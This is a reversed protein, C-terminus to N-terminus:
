GIKQILVRIANTAPAAAFDITVLGSAGRTVDAYVTEGSSVEVLQIMFSSSDNGLGHTASTIPLSTLSGDGITGSFTSASLSLDLIDAITVKYNEGDPASYFPISYNDATDDTADNATLSNIDLGLKATGSSYSLSLGDKDGAGEIHVNGIGIATLSALDINNQVTTWNALATPQDVEAILVDGVRVQETFFLGDATVTYTWGTKILNPNPSNDLNPSNTAANYSGQYVLANSSAQDAYAKVAASTPITTDNDNNEIGEADTIIVAPNIMAFDVAGSSITTTIDAGTAGTGTVDGILNINFSTPLTPFTTLNGAGDIYETADGNMTIDVSPNVTSTGGIAATFANGAHSAGVSTVTGEYEDTSNITITKVSRTVTTTGTGTFNVTDGGDIDVTAGVGASLKWGSYSDVAAWTNDGRLYTTADKTGTASLDLTVDVDNTTTAKVFTGNILSTTDLVNRWDSGDHYRVKNFGSASNFYIQGQAAAPTGSTVQLKVNLLQNNYLDINNLFPIAM